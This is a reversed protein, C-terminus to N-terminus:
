QKAKELEMLRNLEEAELERWESAEEVESLFEQYYMECELRTSAGESGGYISHMLSDMAKAYCGMVNQRYRELQEYEAPVEYYSTSQTFAKLRKAIDELNQAVEVSVLDLLYDHLSNELDELLGLFTDQDRLIADLYDEKEQGTEPNRCGVELTVMLLLVVIWAFTKM